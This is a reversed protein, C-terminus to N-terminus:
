TFNDKIWIKSYKVRDRMFYDVPFVKTHHIIRGIRFIDVTFKSDILFMTNYRGDLKNSSIFGFFM